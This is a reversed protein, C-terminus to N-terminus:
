FSHSRMWEYSPLREINGVACMAHDKDYFVKHAAAKVDELTLEEIRQFIEVPTMRRGYTLLQRGIDECVNTNGDLGMLMTAKLAIKAQDVDEETVRDALLAINNVVSVLLDGAKEREAVAYLGFLGTDKYCTNFTSISNALESNAVEHILQSAKSPKGAARDYSGILTQLLMLPFAYESTWSSGEYALAIHAMTDSEFHIRVDSGVFKGQDLCVADSERQKEDLETRLGGFHHHALDCLVGHDIAGAGAIVMQPALYHTHIYERLDDRTLTRINHETGLITRGLGSGQFATAHLHDLVLEDHQKNVEKMERLIVDRERDVARKDLRSELLIDALIDMARGVDREFVKAFYVTQERSTYANLHGGMNEIEIELDYQTRKSTGKFAMHELFHAAGNNRVTEYRSGADIWVGVTATSMGMDSSPITESAVRLGSPFQTIQTTPAALLYSPVDNNDNNTTTAAASATFPSTALTFRPSQSPKPRSSSLGTRRLLSRVPLKRLLAM